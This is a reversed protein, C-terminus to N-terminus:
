HKMPIKPLMVRWLFLKWRWCHWISMLSLRSWYDVGKENITINKGKWCNRGRQCWHCIPHGLVGEILNSRKMTNKWWHYNKTSINNGNDHHEQKLSSAGGLGKCAKMSISSTSSWGVGRAQMFEELEEKQKLCSLNHGQSWTSSMNVIEHNEEISNSGLSSRDLNDMYSEDLTEYPEEQIAEVLINLFWLSGRITHTTEKKASDWWWFKSYWIQWLHRWWILLMHQQSSHELSKRIWNAKKEM